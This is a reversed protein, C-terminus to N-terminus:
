GKVVNSIISCYFMGGSYHFTTGSSFLLISVKSPLFQSIDLSTRVRSELIREPEITKRVTDLVTQATSQVSSGGPKDSSKLIHSAEKAETMRSKEDVNYQTDYYFTSVVFCPHQNVEITMFETRTSDPSLNYKM